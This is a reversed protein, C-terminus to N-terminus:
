DKKKDLSPKLLLSIEKELSTLTPPEPEKLLKYDLCTFSPRDQQSNAWNGILEVQSGKELNPKTKFVVPVEFEYGEMGFFGYYYVQSNQVKKEIRSALIGPLIKQNTKKESIVSLTVAPGNKEQRSLSISPKKNM